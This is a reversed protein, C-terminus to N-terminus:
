YPISDDDEQIVSSSSQTSSQSEEKKSNSNLLQLISNFNQLVIETTWHDTGNKDAWKRTQLNGEIYVKDGKRVYNKVFNVISQNFIVIRGWETKSKREGTNKDNWQESMAVSFTIIERGDQTARIEPDGGLNGILCMKNLSM